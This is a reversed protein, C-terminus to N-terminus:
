VKKAWIYFEDGAINFSESSTTMVEAAKFHASALIQTIQDLRYTNHIHGLYHTVYGESAVHDETIKGSPDVGTPM